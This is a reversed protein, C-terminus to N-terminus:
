EGKKLLGQIGPKESQRKLRSLKNHLVGRCEREFDDMNRNEFVRAGKARVCVDSAVAPCGFHLAEAISIGFGDVCTPRVMLDAKKFLPWLERQGTLFRFNENLGADTVKRKMGDFYQYDGIDALAFLLGINPYDPKLREVLDICMDIGYLDTNEHFEIRYANAIILPSREKIFERTADSYSALIGPEDEPPPPIFASNIVINHLPESLYDDYLKKLHNGVLMVTECRRLFRDMIRLKRESWGRIGEGHATFQTRRALGSWTLMLAIGTSSCNVHIYNKRSVLIDILALMRGFRSKRGYDIVRVKNGERSLKRALRYVYVSIGGYPPPAPGIILIRM